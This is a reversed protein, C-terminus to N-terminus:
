VRTPIRSIYITCSIVHCLSFFSDTYVLDNKESINTSSDVFNYCMQVKWKRQEVTQLKCNLYTFKVLRTNDRIDDNQAIKKYVNCDSSKRFIRLFIKSM